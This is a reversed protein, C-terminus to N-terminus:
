PTTAGDDIVYNQRKAVRIMMTGALHEIDIEDM